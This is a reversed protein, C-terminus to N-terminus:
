PGVVTVTKSKRQTFTALVRLRHEAIWGQLWPDSEPAEVVFYRYREASGPAMAAERAQTPQPYGRGAYYSIRGDEYYVPAQPDIHEAVWRGATIFHTKQAGLSLVNALMVLMGLAAVLKALRPFGQAFQWLAIALLPAVLLDLFSLYRANMFQANVFFLMLVLLYCLAAWAMPQFAQWYGRWAQWHRGLVFPLSFPGMLTVFKILLAALMGFFIIRGAEDTSYKNVLSNGFQDALRNFSAFVSQPEALTVLYAVRGSHLDIRPLVAIAVVIAALVPVCFFQLFWRRRSPKFASPLQWVSLAVMLMLSELRFLMAVGISVHIAAALWWGGRQEWRLALWLALTCFCWFGPERIIDFRFQNVAPMALVVLCAWWAAQPWRQRVADVMLTSTAAMLVTSLLYACTELPLHTLQHLQALLISYWPWDFLKIAVQPGHLTVQHAIDLYFAGDRGVLGEGLIAILSLLLSGLFAARVPTLRALLLHVPTKRNVPAVSQM